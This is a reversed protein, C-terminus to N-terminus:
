AGFLIKRRTDRRLLSEAQRIRRDIARVREREAKSSATAGRGPLM